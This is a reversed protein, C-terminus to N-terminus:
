QSVRQQFRVSWNSLKNVLSSNAQDTIRVLGMAYNEGDSTRGTLPFDEWRYWHAGVLNNWQYAETLFRDVAASRDNETLTGYKQYPLRGDQAVGFSFESIMVPFGANKMGPLEADLSGAYVNVSVVDVYDKAASLVEPTYQSFRCGLYLGQFGVNTLSQRVTSFYKAAFTKSFARLDAEYSANWKVGPPSTRNTIDSWMRYSTGWATNLRNIIGYKATLMNVLAKKAPQNAPASLTGLGISCAQQATRWSGWSLENDVFVGMCMKDNIGGRLDNTLVKTTESAFNPDFPDPLPGWYQTPVTLKAFNGRLNSRLTYPMLRANIINGDCNAGYTNFGWSKMRDTMITPLQTKWSPGYKRELNATYFNFVSRGNVTTYHEALNGTPSPLDSLVDSRNDVYTGCGIGVENVGFSFFPNGSPDTLAYGKSTKSVHFATEVLNGRSLKKVGGYATSSWPYTSAETVADNALDTAVAVKGNWQLNLAQGFGDIKSSSNAVSYIKASDFRVTTTASDNGYIRVGRVFEKRVGGFIVPVGWGSPVTSPPNQQAVTLPVMIHSTVGPTLAVYMRATTYNAADGSYVEIVVQRQTTGTNTLELGLHSYSSWDPRTPLSIGFFNRKESAVAEFDQAPLTMIPTAGTVKWSGGNGAEYVTKAALVDGSGNAVYPNVSFDFAPASASAGLLALAASSLGIMKRMPSVKGM